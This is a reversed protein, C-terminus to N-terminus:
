AARWAALSGGEGAEKRGPPPRPLTAPILSGGIRDPEGPSGAGGVGHGTGLASVTLSIGDVAISGKEVVYRGLRAPISIRVVDWREPASGPPVGHEGHSHRGPSVGCGMARGGTAGAEGAGPRVAGM